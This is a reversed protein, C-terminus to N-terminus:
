NKEEELHFDEAQGPENNWTFPIINGVCQRLEKPGQFFTRYFPECFLATNSYTPDSPYYFFVFRTVLQYLAM